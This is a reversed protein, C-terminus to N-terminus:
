RKLNLVPFENVEGTEQDVVTVEHYFSVEKIKSANKILGEITLVDISDDKYFVGFLLEKKGSEKIEQNKQKEFINTVVMNTFFSTPLIISFCILFIVLYRKM